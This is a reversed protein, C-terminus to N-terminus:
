RGRTRGLGFAGLRAPGIGRHDAVEADDRVDVVALRRKGVPHELEGAHDGAPVHAGLVQVPHVDLPFAADRDLALRDPQRPGAFVAAPVHQVEDVGGPVDVEGVLHGARERRALARHQEDVRCLADLRLRQGVEIHREFRVQEDDRDEVLDVQGGGLGLPVRLLDGVDDAAVGIVHQADRGLRPLAHPFQQVLDDSLDRRRGAVRRRRGARQDEVRHVVGVAADDGVDPDDVPQQGLALAAHHHRGPGGVLREFHAHDGRLRLRGVSEAGTLDAVEDGAHLVDPLRPDAVRHGRGDVPGDLGQGSVVVRARHHEGAKVRHVTVVVRFQPLREVPQPQVVGRQDIFRLGRRGQPEAEPAAEEAQQVHLDDPLPQLALKVQLQDGGRRVDDVADDHLGPGLQDHGVRAVEGASATGAGDHRAVRRARVALGDAPLDRLTYSGITRAVIM